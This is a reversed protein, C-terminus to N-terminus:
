GEKKSLFGGVGGRVRIGMWYKERGRRGMGWGEGWMYGGIDM